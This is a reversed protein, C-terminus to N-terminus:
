LGLLGGGGGGLDVNLGVDGIPTSIGVSLGSDGSGSPTTDATASAVPQIPDTSVPSISVTEGGGQGPNVTVSGGIPNSTAASSTSSKSTDSNTQSGGSGSSSTTDQVNNGVNSSVLQRDSDDSDWTTAVAGKGGTGKSPSGVGGGTSSNSTLSAFGVMGVIALPLAYLAGRELRQKLQSDYGNELTYKM